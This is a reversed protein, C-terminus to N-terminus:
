KTTKKARPRGPNTVDDSTKKGKRVIPKKQIFPEISVGNSKSNGKTM